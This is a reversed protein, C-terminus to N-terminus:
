SSNPDFLYRYKFEINSVVRLHVLVAVNKGKDINTIDFGHYLNVNSTVLLDTNLSM